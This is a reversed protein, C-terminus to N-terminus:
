RSATLNDGLGEVRSFILKNGHDYYLVLKAPKLDYLNVNPLANVFIDGLLTEKRETGDGGMQITNLQATEYFGTLYNNASTAELEGKDKFTLSIDYLGQRSAPKDIKVNEHIVSELEWKGTLEVHSNVSPAKGCGTLVLISLVYLPVFKYNIM